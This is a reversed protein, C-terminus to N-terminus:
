TSESSWNRAVCLGVLSLSRNILCHVLLFVQAIEIEHFPISDNCVLLLLDTRILHYTNRECISNLCPCYPHKEINYINCKVRKLLHNPLM